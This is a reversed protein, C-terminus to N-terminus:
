RRRRFLLIGMMLGVVVFFPLIMIIPNPSSGIVAPEPPPEESPQEWLSIPEASIEHALIPEELQGVPFWGFRNTSGTAEVWVWGPEGNLTFEVNAKEYGPVHVIAAAHGPCWTVASRYGAGQYMVALLIGMDECDGYALGEKQITNALEDANQAFEDLGFQDIDLRYQVRDRVFYFIEEARQHPDPYREAFQQGLSYATDAWEGLSEFTILPDGLEVSFGEPIETIMLQLYGDEGNIRTRSVQWDDFFDDGEPYFDWSPSAFCIYVPILQVLVVIFLVLFVRLAKM